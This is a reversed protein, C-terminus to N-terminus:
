ATEWFVTTRWAGAIWGERQSSHVVHGPMTRKLAACARSLFGGAGPTVTVTVSARTSRGSYYAVLEIVYVENSDSSNQPFVVSQEFNYCDKPGSGGLLPPDSNVTCSSVHRVSGSLTSVGGPTAVSTPNAAFEEIKPPNTAASSPVTIYVGGVVMLAGAALFHIVHKRLIM